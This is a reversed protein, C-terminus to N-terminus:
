YKKWKKRHSHFIAIILSPRCGSLRLRVISQILAAARVCKGEMSWRWEAARRWRLGNLEWEEILIDEDPEAELGSRITSCMTSKLTLGSAAGEATSAMILLRLLRMERSGTRWMEAPGTERQRELERVKECM